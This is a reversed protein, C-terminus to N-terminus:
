PACSRTVMECQDRLLDALEKPQVVTIRGEWTFLHWAMELLGGARFRVLVSGDPQDEMTQTPHFLWARADEAAEPAVRWVVDVPDNQFVGFSRASYDALSFAPDRTFSAGTEAAAQIGGLAYLRYDGALPSFAVLYHRAGYLLGYPHVHLDLVRGNGRARYTLRLVKWCVIADRLTALLAPAIRPLPGPRRGFSEAAQLDDAHNEISRRREAKMLPLIKLELSRLHEAHDALGDREALGRAASLAVLEEATFAALRNATGAPIRWRKIREGTDVEELAPFVQAVADRMREATRRGVQFEAMIDALSMGDARGQMRLVLHLLNQAKEHRM